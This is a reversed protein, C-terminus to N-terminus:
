ACAYSSRIYALWADKRLWDAIRHAGEDFGLSCIAFCESELPIAKSLGVIDRASSSSWLLIANFLERLVHRRVCSTM